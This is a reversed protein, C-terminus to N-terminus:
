LGTTSIDLICLLEACMDQAAHRSGRQGHGEVFLRPCGLWSPLGWPAAAPHTTVCPRGQQLSRPAPPPAVGSHCALWCPAAPSSEFSAAPTPCTRPLINHMCYIYMVFTHVGICKTSCAPQGLLLQLQM